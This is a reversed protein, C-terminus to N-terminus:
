EQDESIESLNSIKNGSFRNYFHGKENRRTDYSFLEYDNHPKVTAYEHSCMTTDYQNYRAKCEERYAYLNTM